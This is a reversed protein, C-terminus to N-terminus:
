FIVRTASHLSTQPPILTPCPSPPPQAPGPSCSLPPKSRPSLLPSPSFHTSQTEIKFTSCRSKNAKVWVPMVAHVCLNPKPPIHTIWLSLGGNGMRRTEAGFVLLDGQGGGTRLYLSGPFPKWLLRRSVYGLGLFYLVAPIWVNKYRSVLM